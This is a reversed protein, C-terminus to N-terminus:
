GAASEIGRLLKGLAWVEIARLHEFQLGAGAGPNAWRVVCPIRCEDPIGPLRIKLHLRTGFAPVPETAVLVGGRSINITRGPQEAGDLVIEVPTEFDLRAHKRDNTM